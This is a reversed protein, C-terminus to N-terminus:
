TKGVIHQFNILLVICLLVILTLFGTRRVVLIKLPGDISIGSLYSKINLLYFLLILLMSGHYFSLNHWINNMGFAGRRFVQTQQVLSPEELHGARGDQLFLSVFFNFPPFIAKLRLHVLVTLVDTLFFIPQFAPHTLIRAPTAGSTFRLFHLCHLM